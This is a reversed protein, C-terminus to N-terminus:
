VMVTETRVLIVIGWWGISPLICSACCRLWLVYRYRRDSLGPILLVDTRIWDGKMVSVWLTLTIGGRM